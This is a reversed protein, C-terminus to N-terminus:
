PDIKVARAQFFGEISNIKKTNLNCIAFVSIVIAFITAIFKGDFM